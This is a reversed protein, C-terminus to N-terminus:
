LKKVLKFDNEIVYAFMEKVTLICVDKRGEIVRRTLTCTDGVIKLYLNQKKHTLRMCYGETRMFDDMLAQINSCANLTDAFSIVQIDMETYFKLTQCVTEFKSTCWESDDILYKRYHGLLASEYMLAKEDPMLPTFAIKIIKQNTPKSALCQARLIINQSVGIKVLGSESLMVYLRKEKSM